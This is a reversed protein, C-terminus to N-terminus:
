KLLKKYSHIIKKQYLNKYLEGPVLTRPDYDDENLKIINLKELTEVILSSCNSNSKNSFFGSFPIIYHLKNQIIHMFNPYPKGINNAIYKWLIETNIKKNKLKCYYITGDYFTLLDELIILHSTKIISDKSVFCLSNNPIKGGTEWVYKQKTIPCIVIMGVHSFKYENNLSNILKSQFSNGKFFLLDGEKM